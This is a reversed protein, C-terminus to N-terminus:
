GPSGKEGGTAAARASAMRQFISQYSPPDDEQVPAAESTSLTDYTYTSTAFGNSTTAETDTYSRSTRPAKDPLAQLMYPRSNPEPVAILGLSGVVIGVIASVNPSNSNNIGNNSSPTAQSQDTSTAPGPGPPATSAPDDPLGDDFSYQAYDFLFVSDTKGEPNSVLQLIHTTNALSSNSYMQFFYKFPDSANVATQFLGGVPEVEDDMFAYVGYGLIGSSDPTQNPVIVFVMVSSGTFTLNVGIPPDNASRSNFHWTGNRAQAPDPRLRCQSVPCKSGQVWGSGLYKPKEGTVEDGLEDDIYRTIIRGVLYLRGQSVSPIVDTSLPCALDMIYTDFRVPLASGLIRLMVIMGEVARGNGPPKRVLRCGPIRGKHNPSFAQPQPPKKAKRQRKFLLFTVVLGLVFVALFGLAAGLIVAPPIRGMNGVLGSASMIRSQPAIIMRLQRYQLLSSRFSGSRPHPFHALASTTTAFLTISTTTSTSTSSTFDAVGDDFTYQVYDFPIVPDVTILNMTLEVMHKVNPLSSRTLIQFEYTFDNIQDPTHSFGGAAQVDVRFTLAYAATVQTAPNNPIICYVSFTVGM